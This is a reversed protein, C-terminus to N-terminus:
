ASPRRSGRSDLPPSSRAVSAAARRRPAPPARLRSAGFQRAGFPQQGFTRHGARRTSSARRATDTASARRVAASARSACRSSVSRSRRRRRTRCRRRGARASRRGPRRRARWARRTTRRLARREELDHAGIADLECACTGGCRRRPARAVHRGDRELNGAAGIRMRELGIVDVVRRSRDSSVRAGPASRLRCGAGALQQDTLGARGHEVRARVCARARPAAPRRGTRLRGATRTRASRRRAIQAVTDDLDGRAVALQDAQLVPTLGPSRTTTERRRRRAAPTPPSPVAPRLARASLLPSRHFSENLPRDIVVPHHDDQGDSSSPARHQVARSM